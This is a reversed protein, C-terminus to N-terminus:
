CRISEKSNADTSLQKMCFFGQDYHEIAPSPEEWASQPTTGRAGNIRRQQRHPNRGLQRARRAGHGALGDRNAACSCCTISPMLCCSCCSTSRVNSCNHMRCSARWCTTASRCSLFTASPMSTSWYLRVSSDAPM